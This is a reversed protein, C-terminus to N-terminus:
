EIGFRLDRRRQESDDHRLSKFCVVAGGLLAEALYPDVGSLGYEPRSAYLLQDFEDVLLEVDAPVDTAYSLERAAANLREYLESANDLLTPPTMDDYYSPHGGNESLREPPTDPGFIEDPPM